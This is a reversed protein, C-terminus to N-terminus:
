IVEGSVFTAEVDKPSWFELVDSETISQPLFVRFRKSTTKKSIQYISEFWQQKDNHFPVEIVFSTPLRKQSAIMLPQDEPAHFSKFPLENDEIIKKLDESYDASKHARQKSIQFNLYWNLTQTWHSYEIPPVIWYDAGSMYASAKTLMQIGM